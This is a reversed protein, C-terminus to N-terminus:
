PGRRLVVGAAVGMAVLLMQPFPMWALSSWMIPAAAGFGMLAAGLAAAGGASGAFLGPLVGLGFLWIWGAVRILHTPLRTPFLLLAWGEALTPRLGCVDPDRGDGPSMRCVVRVTEGAEASALADRLRLDPRHLGIRSARYPFRVRMEDGGVGLVFLERRGATYISVLAGPEAEPSAKEFEVELPAGSFLKEQLRVPDPHRGPQLPEGALRASRVTGPYADVHWIAPALQVFHPPSPPALQFAAASGALALFSLSCWAVRSWWRPRQLSRIFAIGAAAGLANAAVDVPLANRGPIWIQALEVFLTLGLAPLWARLNGRFVLALGAGLPAFLLVNRLLNALGFEGCFLCLRGRPLELVHDASAPALTLALIVGTAPIAIWLGRRRTREPESAVGGPDPCNLTPTV